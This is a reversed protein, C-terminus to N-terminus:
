LKKRLNSTTSPSYPRTVMIVTNHRTPISNVKKVAALIANYKPNRTLVSNIVCWHRPWQQVTSATNFSGRKGCQGVWHVPQPQVLSPVCSPCAALQGLPYEVHYLMM